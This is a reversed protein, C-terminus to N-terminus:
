QGMKPISPMSKFIDGMKERMAHQQIRNFEDNSVKRYGAPVSFLSVPLSSTSLKTTNITAFEQGRMFVKQRLPVKGYVSGLAKIDGGIKFDSGRFMALNKTVQQLVEKDMNPCSPMPTTSSWIETTINMPRGNMKAAMDVKYHPAKQGNVSATGLNTVKVSMSMSMPKGGRQKPMPPGKPYVTYIRNKTDLQTSAISGCQSLTINNSGFVSTETRQKVGKSFFKINTKAAGGMGGMGGFALDTTQVYALDAHAVSTLSLGASLLCFFSSKKMM